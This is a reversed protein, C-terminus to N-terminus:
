GNQTGMQPRNQDLFPTWFRTRFHLDWPRDQFAQAAGAPDLRVGLSELYVGLLSRTSELYVGLLSRTSWQWIRLGWLSLALAKEYTCLTIHKTDLALTIHKTNFAIHWHSTNYALTIHQIPDWVSQGLGLSYMYIYIYIYAYMCMYIYIYIYIYM